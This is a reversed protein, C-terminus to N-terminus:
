SRISYLYLVDPSSTYKGQLIYSPSLFPPFCICLSQNDLWNVGKIGRIIKLRFVKQQTGYLAIQM